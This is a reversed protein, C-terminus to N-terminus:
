RTAVETTIVKKVKLAIVLDSTGSVNNQSSFLGGILPIKSLFPISRESKDEKKRKVGGIVIMEGDKLSVSQLTQQVSSVPNTFTNGDITFTVFEDISALIPAIQVDIYGDDKIHCRVALMIGDQARAITYSTTTEGVTGSVSKQISGIYPISKGSFIAVPQLNRAYIYPSSLVSVDGQEELAKLVAGIDSATRTITLSPKTINVLDTAIKTNLTTGGITKALLDWDIGFRFENKTSVQTVTAEVIILKSTVDKLNDIFKEIHSINRPTDVVMLSASAWDLVYHGDPSILKKINEEFLKRGDLKDDAKKLVVNARLNQTGMDTSSSSTASSGGSSGTGGGVMDGGMEATMSPVTIAVDPINFTKAIVKHITIINGKREYGYNVQQTLASIATSLPVDKLDVLVSQNADVQPGFIMTYGYTNGIELLIDGLRGGYSSYSIRPDSDTLAPAKVTDGQKLLSEAKPTQSKLTDSEKEGAGEQVPVIEYRSAKKKPEDLKEPTGMKGADQAFSLHASFILVM